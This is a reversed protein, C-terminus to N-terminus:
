LFLMLIYVCMDAFMNKKEEMSEMKTENTHRWSRWLLKVIM